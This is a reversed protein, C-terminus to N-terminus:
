DPPFVKDVFSMGFRLADGSSTFCEASVFEFDRPMQDRAVQVIVRFGARGVPQSQVVIDAVLYSGM